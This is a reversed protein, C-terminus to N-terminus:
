RPRHIASAPRQGNTDCDAEHGEHEIRRQRHQQPGVAGHLDAMLCQIRLEFRIFRKAGSAPIRRQRSRDNSRAENQTRTTGM